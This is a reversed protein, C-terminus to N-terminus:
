TRELYDMIEQFIDGWDDQFKASVEDRIRETDFSLEDADIITMGQAEIEARMEDESEAFSDYVAQRADVGAQELIQQDEESLKAWSAENIFVGSLTPNHGTMICYHEIEHLGTDVINSFPMGTGDIMNTVLSTIVEGWGMPTPTAGMASMTEMFIKSPIVRIKLGQLDEESYVPQNTTLLNQNGWSYTAVLRVGSGALEENLRDMIPSDPHTVKFLDEESDFLYPAELVSLAPCLDTVESVDHQSLDAIGTQTGEINNATLTGGFYNEVIVRGETREEVLEKFTLCFVGAPSQEGNVDSFKLVIPEASGQGAAEGGSEAPSSCSACLLLTPILTLVALATIKRKM